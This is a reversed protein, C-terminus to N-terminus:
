LLNLHNITTLPLLMVVILWLQYIDSVLVTVYACMRTRLNILMDVTHTLKFVFVVQCDCMSDCDCDCLSLWM